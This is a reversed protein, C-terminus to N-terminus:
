FATKIQLSIVRVDKVEKYGLGILKDQNVTIFYKKLDVGVAWKYGDDMYAQMKFIINKIEM